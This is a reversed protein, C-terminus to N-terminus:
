NGTLTAMCLVRSFIDGIWSSIYDTISVLIMKKETVKTSCIPNNLSSLEGVKWRLYLDYLCMGQKQLDM